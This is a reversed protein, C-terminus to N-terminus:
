KQMFKKGNMIVIGKYDKGVKQGSLNYIVGNQAAVKVTNISAAGAEIKITYIHCGNTNYVIVDGDNEITWSHTDKTTPAFTDGIKTAADVLGDADLGSYLEVGRGEAPKHSEVEMTIISGAKVEPITFCPVKKKGGGLWLYAGGAYDGLSTSAYNVAIAM